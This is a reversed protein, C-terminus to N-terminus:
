LAAQQRKVPRILPAKAKGTIGPPVPNVIVGSPNPQCLSTPPSQHFHYWYSADNIWHGSYSM